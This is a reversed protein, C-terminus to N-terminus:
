FNRTQSIAGLCDRKETFVDFLVSGWAGHSGFDAARNNKMDAGGWVRWALLALGGRHDVCGWTDRQDMCLIAIHSGSVPSSTTGLKAALRAPRRAPGVRQVVHSVEEMAIM